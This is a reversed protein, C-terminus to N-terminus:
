NPRATRPPQAKSNGFPLRIFMILPSLTKQNTQFRRSSPPPPLKLKFPSIPCIGEDAMTVGYHLGRRLGMKGYACMKRGALFAHLLNVYSM